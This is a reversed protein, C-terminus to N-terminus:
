LTIHTRSTRSDRCLLIGSHLRTTPTHYGLSSTASPPSVTSVTSGPTLDSSLSPLQHPRALGQERTTMSGLHSRHTRVCHQVHLRQTIASRFRSRLVPLLDSSWDRFRPSLPSHSRLVALLDSSWDHLRPSLPSHSRLDALVLRPVSALATCSLSCIQHGTM